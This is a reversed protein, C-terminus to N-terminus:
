GLLEMDNVKIPWPLRALGERVGSLLAATLFVQSGPFKEAIRDELVEITTPRQILISLARLVIDGKDTLEGPKRAIDAAIIARMRKAFAELVASETGDKELAIVSRELLDEGYLDGSGSHQAF